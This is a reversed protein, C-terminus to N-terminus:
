SGQPEIEAGGRHEEAGRGGVGADAVRAGELQHRPTRAHFGRWCEAIQSFMKLFNNSTLRLGGFSDLISRHLRTCM